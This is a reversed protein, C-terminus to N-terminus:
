FDDLMANFGLKKGVQCLRRVEGGEFFECDFSPQDEDDYDVDRWM